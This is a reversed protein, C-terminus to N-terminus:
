NLIFDNKRLLLIWKGIDQINKIKWINLFNGHVKSHDMSNKERMFWDQLAELRDLVSM